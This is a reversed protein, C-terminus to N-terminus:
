QKHVYRFSTPPTREFFLDDFIREPHLLTRFVARTSRTHASRVRPRRFREGRRFDDFVGYTFVTTNGNGDASMRFRTARGGRRDPTRRIGICRTVDGTPRGDSRARNRVSKRTRM